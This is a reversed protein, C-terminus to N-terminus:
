RFPNDKLADGEAAYPDKVPDGPAPAVARRPPALPRRPPTADRVPGAVPPPAQDLQAAKSGSAPPPAPEAAPAAPVVPAAAVPAAAPEVKPTTSPVPEPPRGAPPAIQQVVAPAVQLPGRDVPGQSARWLALAALVTAGLAAVLAVALAGSRREVPAPVAMPSPAAPLATLPLTPSATYGLEAAAEARGGAAQGARAPAGATTHRARMLEGALAAMSPYRDIPDKALARLVIRDVEPPVEPRAASPPDPLRERQARLTAAASEGSIPPRGTLLEYALVGAAYVDSLPDISVGAAAEPAMYEPTGIVLGDITNRAAGPVHSIGFDILKAREVGSPLLEVFVNDPKVDRHIVGRAHAAALARCVQETLGLARAVPLPGEERLLQTLSRGQMAEMVYFLEGDPDQGYDLVDVVNEQDIRSAARAEQLFRREVEETRGPHLVKVAYRRGLQVHECLYVAGMGGSGIPQLVRYRGGLVRGQLRDGGESPSSTGRDSSEADIGAAMPLGASM